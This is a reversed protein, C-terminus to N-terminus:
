GTTSPHLLRTPFIFKSLLSWSPPDPLSQLVDDLRKLLLKSAPFTEIIGKGMQSWQAGQGTFVFGITPLDTNKKGFVFAGDDIESSSAVM